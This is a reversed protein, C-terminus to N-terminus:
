GREKGGVVGATAGQSALHQRVALGLPNFQFSFKEGEGTPHTWRMGGWWTVGSLHNGAEVHCDVAVWDAETISQEEVHPDRALIFERQAKTLKAAVDAVAGAETNTTPNMLTAGSFLRDIDADTVGRAELDDAAMLALRRALSKGRHFMRNLRKWETRIEDDSM